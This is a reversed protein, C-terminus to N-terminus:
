SLQLTCFIRCWSPSPNGVRRSRKCLVPLRGSIGRRCSSLLTSKCPLLQFLSFICTRTLCCRYQSENSLQRTRGKRNIRELFKDINRITYDSKGEKELQILVSLIKPETTPQRPQFYPPNDQSYPEKDPFVRGLTLYNQRAQDKPPL